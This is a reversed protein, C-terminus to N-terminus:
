ATVASVAEWAVVHYDLRRDVLADLASALEADDEVLAVHCKLDICGARVENLVVEELLRRELFDIARTILVATSRFKTELAARGAQGAIHSPRPWKINMHMSFHNTAPVIQTPVGALRVIHGDTAMMREALEGANISMTRVM